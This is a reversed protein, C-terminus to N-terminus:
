VWRIVMLRCRGLGLMVVMMLILSICLMFLILMWLLLSFLGLLSVGLFSVMNWECGVLFLCMRLGIGNMCLMM